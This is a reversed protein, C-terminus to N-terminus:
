VLNNFIEILQKEENEWILEKKATKLQKLYKNKSNLLIDIQLALKKPTRNNVVQGIKYKKIIASMEPLDSVLVPVEAQVYDFIKNPLAYRYNLGLDEEISIGLDALPTIKKLESPLVRSILKVNTLKHKEVEKKIDTEIEGSGIILLLANNLYQMTEIILELGRGKNIAGQYIILKKDNPNFNLKSKAISLQAKPFNRVVKFDTKYLKNYFNAISNNVTYTNKLNPVILKEITLWIKQKFPRNILEPLESFLEHSDYVLKINFLKSIIFNPLLTDLDNALLVDKKSFFLKFFLRTNFEAYSLMGRNFVLNFKLVKYPLKLKLTKTKKRGIVLVEFNNNILTNCVKQVRQDTSFDNNVSVIIRKM